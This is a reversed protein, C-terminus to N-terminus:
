GRGFLLTVEDTIAREVHATSFVQDELEEFSCEYEQRFVSAPLARREEEL